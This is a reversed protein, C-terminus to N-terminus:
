TLLKEPVPENVICAISAPPDFTVAIAVVCLVLTPKMIVPFVQVPTLTLPKLQVAVAAVANEKSWFLQSTSSIYQWAVAPAFELALLLPTSTSLFEPFTLIFM